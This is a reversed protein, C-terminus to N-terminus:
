CLPEDVACAWVPLPPPPPPPPPPSELPPPTPPPPPALLKEPGILPPGGAPPGGGPLTCSHILCAMSSSRLCPMLTVSASACRMQCIMWCSDPPSGCAILLQSEFAALPVGDLPSM